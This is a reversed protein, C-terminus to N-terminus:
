LALSVLNGRVEPDTHLAYSVLFATDLHGADSIKMSNVSFSEKLSGLLIQHKQLFASRNWFKPQHALHRFSPM